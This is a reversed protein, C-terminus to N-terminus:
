IRYGSSAEQELEAFSRGSGAHQAIRGTVKQWRRITIDVYRPDIEIGYGVRGTREAAIVTTGSGLFPDLVIDGRKSCDLIADAVLAVPKLTPHFELLNGNEVSRPFSNVGPYNWVNRGYRGLKGSQVNRSHPEVGNKFVFVLEYQNRFVSGMSGNDKIWICLNILESYIHRSASLMERIHHWDMFVYHLSGPKSHQVMLAFAATLFDNFEREAMEGASMQLNRHRVTGPSTGPGEIPVNYPPDTFVMAAYRKDMLKAYSSQLLSNGCLIRNRGLIWLDDARTIKSVNEGQPLADVTDDEREDSSSNLDELLLDIEGMEFGLTDLSFDIEAESLIKLQEGLLKKDWSSNETLKNDAIMFARCQEDSLHEALCAPVETMGLFRAALLRGHGAIVHNGKNILVPNLFGFNRISAALQQVQKDSHIRPNCPDPKLRDIPVIQIELKPQRARETLTETKRL